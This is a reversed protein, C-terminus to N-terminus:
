IGTDQIDHKSISLYYEENLEESLDELAVKTGWVTVHNESYDDFRKCNQEITFGELETLMENYTPTDM